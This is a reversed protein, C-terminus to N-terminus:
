ANPRGTSVEKIMQNLKEPGIQSQAVDGMVYHHESDDGPITVKEILRCACPVRVWFSLKQVSEQKLLV